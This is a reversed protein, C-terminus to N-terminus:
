RLTSPRSTLATWPLTLLNRQTQLFFFFLFTLSIQTEEKMLHWVWSSDNEHMKLPLFTLLFIFTPCFEQTFVRPHTFFRACPDSVFLLTSSTCASIGMTTTTTMACCTRCPASCCTTRWISRWPSRCIFLHVSFWLPIRPINWSKKRRKKQKLFFLQVHLRFLPRCTRRRTGDAQLQYLPEPQLPRQQWTDKYSFIELVVHLVKIVMLRSSERIKLTM